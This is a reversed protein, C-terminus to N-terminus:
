SLDLTTYGFEQILKQLYHFDDINKSKSFLGKKNFLIKDHAYFTYLEIYPPNATIDREGICKGSSNPYKRKFNFACEEYTLWHFDRFKIGHTDINVISDYLSTSKISVLHIINDKEYISYNLQSQM